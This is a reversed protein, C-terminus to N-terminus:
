GINQRERESFVSLIVEITLCTSKQQAVNNDAKLSSASLSLNIIMRKFSLDTEKGYMRHQVKETIVMLLTRKFLAYHTFFFLSNEAIETYGSIRCKYALVLM